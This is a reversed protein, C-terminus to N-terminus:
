VPLRIVLLERENDFIQAIVCVAQWLAQVNAVGNLDITCVSTKVKRILLRLNPDAVANTKGWKKCAKIFQRFLWNGLRYVPEMSISIQRGIRKGM